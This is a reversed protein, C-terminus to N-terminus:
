ESGGESEGGTQSWEKVRALHDYDGYRSAFEVFPRPPYPTEQQRFQDLLARAQAAHDAVLEAFSKDKCKVPNPKGDEGGLLRVYAASEARHAGIDKFAGQELMAAELTLQPAFGACVQKPTPPTGTKYDFVHGAGDPAIEIRDAEASLTFQSGDALAFRWEGKREPHITVGLARRAREFALAHDLGAEVRAWDFAEFAPDCLLSDLKERALALLRDRANEPLDGSPFQQAFEALAAHLAMGMERAGEEPGLPPLPKLRLIQEAYIAYPDRRLTEVRTVSLRKPRLEIPPRPEPRKCPASTEPADLAAAIALKEAGRAKCAAFADGALAEIRTVFRSPVTPSGGRKEARSLVVARAGLAMAFDHASQGIRREPPSLGLQRRMSRNLFAGTDAQPPWVTEDLGALLVLDADLLRAELPGLIKLRPHARRPGRLMTEFLLSNLFAAYAAADFVLDVAAAIVTDFIAFLEALGERPAEEDCALIATLSERHAQAREALQADPALKRLPTMAADMRALLDAIAAWDTESLRRVAPHAHVDAALARAADVCSALRPGVAVARLVAIEVQPALRALTEPSLGFRALPHALLAAADAATLGGEACDATLRALAGIPTAGLPEGGSDDIDIEFRALEAAVRRAIDRDPTILAATRGPTELAERMFLALALAELREDPAEIFSVEGLAEPIADAAAARYDRWDETSDAPRLAQSVFARRAEAPGSLRALEGVADRCLGMRDLLRKLMTQPHTFAPEDHDEVAEGIRRWAAEDLGRDLGPLVVAGRDLRSIADLLRATTAMAGTSGLAIVPAKPPEAALQAIRAETLAKQRRAADILGRGALTEPWHEFAIKLFRATIAYFRDYADEVLAGLAEAAVDEVIFEDILAGLEGALAFANAPSPSVLFEERLDHQLAGNEDISVIAHPLQRAWAMVLASLILRRELPDIAAAAAADFLQPDGPELLAANEDEMGGLPLIRPLILAPKDVIRAFEVALARKARQTPVYITTQAVDLPALRSFDPIIEDALLAEVFSALFPAGPAITFVRRAM